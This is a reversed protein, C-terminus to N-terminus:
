EMNKETITVITESKNFQKLINDFDSAEELIKIIYSNLSTNLCSAAKKLKRHFDRNCRLVITGNPTDKSM